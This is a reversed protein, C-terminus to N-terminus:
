QVTSTLTTQIRVEAKDKVIYEVCEMDKCINTIAIINNQFDAGADNAGQVDQLVLCALIALIVTWM